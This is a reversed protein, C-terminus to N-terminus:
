LLDAFHKKSKEFLTIGALFVIVSFIWFYITLWPYNWFFTDGSMCDRYGQIIYYIPNLKLITLVAPAMMDETWFIPIAFYGLQLIIGIIQAFDKMFVSLAAILWSLGCVMFAMAFSYYLLQLTMWSPKVGYVAYAFFMFIIFCLHIMFSSVVKIIPLISVKFKMKKVLYSYERLCGTANIVVDQFYMWPIYAPIFWLIYPIDQVPPNKFGLQFVFWFVLITLVPQVFSWMIGFFSGAYRAKIDNTILMKLIERNQYLDIFFGRLYYITLMIIVFVIGFACASFEIGFSFTKNEISITPIQNLNGNIDVYLNQAYTDSHLFYRTTIGDSDQQISQVTLYESNDSTQYHIDLIYDDTPSSVSLVMYKLNQELGNVAFRYQMESYTYPKVTGSKYAPTKGMQEEIWNLNSFTLTIIIGSILTVAFYSLRIIKNIDINKM